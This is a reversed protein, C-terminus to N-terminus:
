ASLRSYLRRCGSECGAFQFGDRSSQSGPPDQDSTSPRAKRHTEDGSSEQLQGGVIANNDVRFVTMDGDWGEVSQGDFLSVFGTEPEQGSLHAVSLFSAFVFTVFTKM